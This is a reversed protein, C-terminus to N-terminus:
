IKAEALNAQAPELAGSGFDVANVRCLDALRYPFRGDLTDSGCLDLGPFASVPCLFRYFRCQWFISFGSSIGIIWSSVLWPIFLGYALFIVVV